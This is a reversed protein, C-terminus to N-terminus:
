DQLNLSFITLNARVLENLTVLLRAFKHENSIQVAYGSCIYFQYDGHLFKDVPLRAIKRVTYESQILTHMALIYMADSTFLTLSFPYFKM